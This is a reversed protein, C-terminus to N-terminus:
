RELERLDRGRTERGYVVVLVFGGVTPIAITLAAIGIAPVAAFVSLTQCILGGTKSCAAIWGTARGRVRLPYNEATYPLLVSIVGTAGTILLAIPITPDSLGAFGIGRLALALSGLGTLAIMVLLARKTSWVAYLWSAIVVTPMAILSSRTIIAAAMGMNQGESILQGPLWLLLGFNVFGWVLGVLTLTITQGLFRREAPPLHSHDAKAEDDWDVTQTVVVSGFRALTARAEDARGIHMLFRASEPIFPSLLVLILGSPLNLFWMIRWGFEPQLLASFGSAALYGGVAGIGGVAVLSWGRHCTPMIEALLAYAVPLMGGAAAGMLFCMFLNWGFSPMAGCISTGIFMVASLLITARRGYLDAIAGWFFSGLVTGLLAWFPLLAVKAPGIMYEAKMGPTVFGLAAPKMIDIVLAAALAGGALWHWKTLPADEPAVIREHAAALANRNPAKPQLGYAAALCGVVILIMGALMDSDMPMGALMYHMQRAMLFMPLHLLAGAVVLLCGVWFAPTSRRDAFMFLEYM